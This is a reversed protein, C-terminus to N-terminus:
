VRYASFSHGDRFAVVPMLDAPAEVAATKDIEWPWRDPDDGEYEKLYTQLELGLMVCATVVAIFSLILMMTYVNSRPKQVTVGVVEKKPEDKKEALDPKEESETSV